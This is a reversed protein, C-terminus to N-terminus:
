TGRITQVATSELDDYLRMLVERLNGREEALLRELRLPDCLTDVHREAGARCLAALVIQRALRPSSKTAILIPLRVATHSTVLLAMSRRRTEFLCRLQQWRTLQEFGDLVLLNGSKWEPHSEWVKQWAQESRRLTLWVTTAFPPSEQHETRVDCPAVPHSRVISESLLPVLQELLTSKGSGHPGVIVARCACQQRFREALGGVTLGEPAIWAIEGPQVFNTAFPNSQCRM